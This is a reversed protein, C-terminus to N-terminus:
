KSAITAVVGKHDSPYVGDHDCAALVTEAASLDWQGCGRLIILDIVKPTGEMLTSKDDLRDASCQYDPRGLLVQLAKEDPSANFDGAFVIPYAWAIL